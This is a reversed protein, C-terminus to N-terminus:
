IKTTWNNKMPKELDSPKHGIKNKLREDPKRCFGTRRYRKNYTDKAGGEVKPDSGALRLSNLIDGAAQKHAQPPSTLYHGIACAPLDRFSALNKKSDVDLLSKNSLDSIAAKQLPWHTAM